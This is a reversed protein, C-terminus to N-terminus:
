AIYERLLSVLDPEIRKGEHEYTQLYLGETHRADISAGVILRGIDIGKAADKEKRNSITIGEGSLYMFCGESNIKQVIEPLKLKNLCYTEEIEIKDELDDELDAM